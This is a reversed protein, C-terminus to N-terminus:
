RLTKQSSADAGGIYRAFFQPNLEPKFYHKRKIWVFGDGKSIVAVDIPGGVTEAATMSMRRKFSTLNVLSEAMEALLDKPLVAVASVVPDVLERRQYASLHKQFEEFTSKGAAELKRRLTTKDNDSMGPVAKLVEMPYREFITKWYAEITSRCNPDIGEMFAVVMEHQAFPIISASNDHRIAEQRGLKYQLIGHMLGGVVIEYLSPFIEEEGFGAIVIGSNARDFTERTCLGVAIEILAMISKKSIPINEFVESAIKATVVKSRARLKKIESRRLHSLPPRSSISREYTDVVQDLIAQIQSATVQKSAKLTTDISKEVDRRIRVLTAAISDHFYQEQVKSPFLQSSKTLFALFDKFYEEVTDFTRRGLQQRYVKIITEWPTRMMQAGGYVMVGVPAYRSLTFLKNTTNFIKRGTGTEITVASDAALAVAEKNLIAIEATV